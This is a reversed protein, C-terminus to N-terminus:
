RREYLEITISSNKVKSQEIMQPSVKVQKPKISDEWFIEMTNLTDSEALAAHYKNLAKKVSRKARQAEKIQPISDKFNAMNVPKAMDILKGEKTYVFVESINDYDYKISVKQGIYM